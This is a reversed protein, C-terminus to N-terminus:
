LALGENLCIEMCARLQSRIHFVRLRLARLTIGLEEALKSRHIIKAHGEEEYYSVVLHQNHRSQKQMCQDLCDYDRTEEDEQSGDDPPPLEPKVRDRLDEKIVNRAVGCFYLTPDGVYNEILWEIKSVVRDITEDALGEPESSGHCAFIKILRTRIKEYKEAALDRDSSLWGLLM